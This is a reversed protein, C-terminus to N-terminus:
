RARSLVTIEVSVHTSSMVRAALSTNAFEVAACVAGAPYVNAVVSSRGGATSGSAGASVMPAGENIDSGDGPNWIM